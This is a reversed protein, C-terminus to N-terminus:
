ISIKSTKKKRTSQPLTAGESLLSYTHSVQDYIHIGQLSTDSNTCGNKNEQAGVWTSTEKSKWTEDICAIPKKKLLKLRVANNLFSETIPCMQQYNVKEFNAFHRSLTVPIAVVLNLMLWSKRMTPRQHFSVCEDRYSLLTVSYSVRIAVNLM